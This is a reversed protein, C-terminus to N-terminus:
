VQRLGVSLVGGLLVLIAGLIIAAISIIEVAKQDIGYRSMGNLLNRAAAAVDVSM